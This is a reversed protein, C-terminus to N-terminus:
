GTAGDNEVEREYRALFLELAKGKRSARFAAYTDLKDLAANLREVRSGATDLALAIM